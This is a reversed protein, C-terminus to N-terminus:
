SCRPNSIGSIESLEHREVVIREARAEDKIRDGLIRLGLLTCLMTESQADVYRLFSPPLDPNAKLMPKRAELYRWSNDSYSDALERIVAADTEALPDPLANIRDVETTTRVVVITAPMIELMACDRPAGFADAPIAACAGSGEESAASAIELGKESRSRWGASAALRFLGIRTRPDSASRAAEHAEEAIGGLKREADGCDLLIEEAANFDGPDGSLRAEAAACATQTEQIEDLQTQLSDFKAAACAQLALATLFTVLTSGHKM